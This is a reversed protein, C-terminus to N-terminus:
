MGKRGQCYDGKDRRKYSGRAVVAVAVVAVCCLLVGARVRRTIPCAYRAEGSKLHSIYLVVRACVLFFVFFM